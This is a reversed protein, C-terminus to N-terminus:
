TKLNGIDNGSPAQFARLGFRQLSAYATEVIEAKFHEFDVWQTCTTFCYLEIPLGSATAAQQRVMLHPEPNTLPNTLMRHEMYYRFFFLNTVDQGYAPCGPVMAALREAEDASCVSISSIDIYVLERMRRGGEDWMGRYNQFSETILAHTPITTISNDWNQVKVFNLTVDTVLGNAGRKDLIMWDGPRLIDYYNIQVGAVLGMISDKFVLMLVAASAGLGALIVSPERDLLISIAFIIGICVTLIKLTQYLGTLPRKKLLESESSIIQFSSIFACVLRTSIWLIILLFAKDIYPLSVPKDRFLMPVFVYGLLAPLLYSALNLVRDNFLHDDWTVETKKTFKNVAPIVLKRFVFFVVVCVAAVIGIGILRETTSLQQHLQEIWIRELQDLM